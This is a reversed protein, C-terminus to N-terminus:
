HIKGCTLYYLETTKKQWKEQVNKDNWKCKQLEYFDSTKPIPNEAIIDLLEKFKAYVEFDIKNRNNKIIDIDELFQKRRDELSIFSPFNLITTDVIDDLTITDKKIVRNTGEAVFVRVQKQKQKTKYVMSAIEYRSTFDLIRNLFQYQEYILNKQLEAKMEYDKNSRFFLQNGGIGILTGFAILLLDKPLGSVQFKKKENSKIKDTM